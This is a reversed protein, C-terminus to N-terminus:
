VVVVLFNNEDDKNDRNYDFIFIVLVGGAAFVVNTYDEAAADEFGWIRLDFGLFLANFVFSISNAAIACVLRKLM